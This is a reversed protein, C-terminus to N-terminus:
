GVGLAALSKASSNKGKVELAVISYKQSPTTLGVAYTGTTGADTHYGGYVTYRGSIFAYTQENLPGINTRWVRSAGDAALFDSNAVVVTSNAATTTINLTPNGSLVNTKSSAGVGDSGRFTLVNGGFDLISLGSITFTVTMSKNSDVIATWIYLHCYDTVQVLQQQTWTLSGGSIATTRSTNGSGTNWGEMISFAVLVDSALVNFSATSKTTLTNWVTEAEQIFIPPIRVAM